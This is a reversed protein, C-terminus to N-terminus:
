IFEDRHVNQIGITNPTAGDHNTVRGHQQVGRFPREM